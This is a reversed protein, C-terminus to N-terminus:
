NSSAATPTATPESDSYVTATKVANAQQGWKQILSDYTGNQMLYQVAAQAAKLLEPNNKAVAFGVPSLDYPQGIDELKGGTQENVYASTTSDDLKADVRKNLVAQVLAAQVPFVSVNIAPKGAATCAASLGDIQAQAASGTAVGVNRGCLTDTGTIGTPNGKLVSVISGATLFQVFDVQARREPTITFSAMAVDFRNSQLGAIQGEFPIQQIQPKVGLAQGLANTLDIDFGQQQGDPTVYEFPPYALGSSVTITGADRVEAPLLARSAEDVAVAPAASSGNVAGSPAQPGGGGSACGAVTIAAALGVAVLKLRGLNFTPM